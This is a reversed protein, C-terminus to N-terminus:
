CMNCMLCHRNMARHLLTSTTQRVTILNLKYVNRLNVDSVYLITNTSDFALGWPQSLTTGSTDMRFFAGTALSVRWVHSNSTDTVYAYTSTPDLLVLAAAVLGTSSAGQLPSFLPETRGYEAPVMVPWTGVLAGTSCQIRDSNARLTWGPLSKQYCYTADCRAMTTGLPTVALACSSSSLVPPPTMGFHDCTQTLSGTTLAYQSAIGWTCSSGFSLTGGPSCTGVTAGSPLSPVTCSNPNCVLTAGTWRGSSTCVLAGGSVQTYSASCAMQCTAGLPSLAATTPCNGISIGVSAVLPFDNPIATGACQASVTLFISDMPNNGHVISIALLLIVLFHVATPTRGRASSRSTHRIMRSVERSYRSGEM